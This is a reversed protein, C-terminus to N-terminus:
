RSLRNYIKHLKKAASEWSLEKIEHDIFQFQEKKIAPYDLLAIMKTAMENVDWFDVKLVHKIVESVGSQKSIITPIQYDLAELCALGFPESVSPMVFVDSISYLYNIEERHLFGTFLINSGQKLFAVYEIMEKLQNGSGAIVFKVNKRHMLIKHAAQIFYIPGKQNTIRGLFLIIKFHKKTPSKIKEQPPKRSIGNHVISIKNGDIGYYRKIMDKTYSSVTVIHDAHQMGYKEIAYSFSNIHLSRDPELSHIHLIFPKKSIEKARIAAMITLWDHAHIIDHEVRKALEVGMRAYNLVETFLNHDYKGTMTPLMEPTSNTIYEKLLEFDKFSNNSSRYANFSMNYRCGSAPKNESTCFTNCELITINKQPVVDKPLKPLVFFIKYGLGALGHNIGQCAIGLGGTIYPPYEWGFM